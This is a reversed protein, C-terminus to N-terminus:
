SHPSLPSYGGHSKSGSSHSYAQSDNGGLHGWTDQDHEAAVPSPSCYLSVFGMQEYGCMTLGYTYVTHIYDSANVACHARCLLYTNHQLRPVCAMTSSYVTVTNVSINYNYSNRNLKALVQSLM